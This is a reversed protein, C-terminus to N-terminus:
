EDNKAVGFRRSRTSCRGGLASLAVRLTGGPPGGGRQLTGPPDALRRRTDGFLHILNFAGGGGGCLRVTPWGVDPTAFFVFLPYAGGGGSVGLVGPLAFHGLPEGRRTDGFLHILPKAGVGCVVSCWFVRCGGESQIKLDPWRPRAFSSSLPGGVVGENVQRDPTACFFHVSPGGPTSPSCWEGSDLPSVVKRLAPASVQGVELVFTPLFSKRPITVAYLFSATM